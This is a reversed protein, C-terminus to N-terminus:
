DNEDPTSVFNGQTKSLNAKCTNGEIKGLSCGVGPVGWGILFIKVGPLGILWLQNVFVHVFEHRQACRRMANYDDRM